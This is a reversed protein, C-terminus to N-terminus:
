GAPTGPVTHSYQSLPARPQRKEPSVTVTGQDGAEPRRVLQDVPAAEGVTELRCRAVAHRPLGLVGLGM